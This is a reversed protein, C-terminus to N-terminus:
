PLFKGSGPLAKDKTAVKYIVFGIAGVVIVPLAIGWVFGILAGLVKVTISVAILGLVVYLILKGM